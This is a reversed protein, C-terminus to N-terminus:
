ASHRGTSRIVANELVICHSGIEIAGGEAVISAGFMIRCHAGIKVNGCITATPAVYATPDILPTHGHHTLIMPFARRAPTALPLRAEHHPPVCRRALIM